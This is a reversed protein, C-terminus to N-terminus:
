QVVTLKRTVQQGGAELRLLYTGSALGQVDLHREHHGAEAGPAATRVTRGLMDYLRLRVTGESAAEDPVAFRVTVRGSTPNPYTEQLRLGTPGGRAVAVPDSLTATGGVDVQRLRYELTDAEYPLDTDTFRYTRAESSTGGEAKSEVFGVETWTREGGDAEARSRQIEFGANNSESATEWRLRVRDDRSTAEFSTMEVPLPESDSGLVFESFSGTTAM